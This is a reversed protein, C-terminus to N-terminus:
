RPLEGREGSHPAFDHEPKGCDIPRRQRGQGDRLGRRMGPAQEDDVPGRGNRPSFEGSRNERAMPGMQQGQGGRMGRQANRNRPANPAPRRTDPALESQMAVPAHMDGAEGATVAVRPTQVPGAEPPEAYAAVSVGCIIALAATLLNRTM